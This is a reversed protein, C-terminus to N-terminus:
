TASEDVHNDLFLQEVSLPIFVIGISYGTCNIYCFIFLLTSHWKIFYILIDIHVFCIDIYLLKIM